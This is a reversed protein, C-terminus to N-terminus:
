GVTITGGSILYALNEISLFSNTPMNPKIRFQHGYSDIFDIYGTSPGTTCIQGISMNALQASDAANLTVLVSIGRYAPATRQNTVNFAM